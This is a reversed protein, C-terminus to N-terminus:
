AINIAEELTQPKSATITGKISQSLGEIFVEMLKKNIPVMNPCLTALEQFRRAYTKLDNGKIVLNYFEDEMKKVKTRPCYKNILIAPIERPEPNRNTNDTNAMNTAQAELAAAVSDAVLQVDKIILELNSIRFRALSINNNNGMQKRQLKSIQARAEQLETELNEFDQQIIVRGNGFGEIKDEIHEIRDLSLENTKHSSEGMEFAQPLASTSSSSQEHGRKKPPLLEKPLVFEQPNFMPSLMPSPPVIVPPSIPSEKAYYAHM